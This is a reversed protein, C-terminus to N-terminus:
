NDNENKNNRMQKLVEEIQPFNRGTRSLEIKDEIDYSYCVGKSDVTEILENGSYVVVMVENTNKHIIEDGVHIKEKKKKEYERLRELAEKGTYEKLIVSYSNDGWIDLVEDASYTENYNHLVIKRALEWAENLGEEYDKNM